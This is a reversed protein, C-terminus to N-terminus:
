ISLFNALIRAGSAGSKEPHFQCGYFNDKRIASSFPLTYETRAITHSSVPVYYSHVFYMYSDAKTDMFLKTKLRSVRNWGTHPAKEREPFRFVTESFIGLGPVQGEELYACMLQMGLCIGLVPQQLTPLLKDLGNERLNELASGAAGVGPFIIKDAQRIENPNNTLIAQLGMRQLAFQLSCVNGTGYNIIAIDM